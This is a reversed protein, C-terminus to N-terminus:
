GITAAGALRDRGRAGRDPGPQGSRCASRRAADRRRVASRRVRERGRARDRPAALRAPVRPARPLDRAAVAQGDRRRARGDLAGESRPERLLVLAAQGRPAVGLQACSRRTASSTTPPSWRSTPRSRPRRRTTSSSTRRRSAHRRARRRHGRRRRSLRARRRRTCRPAARRGRARRHALAGLRRAAPRPARACACLTPVDLRARSSRSCRSWGRSSSSGRGRSAARRAPHERRLPQGPLLRDRRQVHVGAARRLVAVARSARARCARAAAARHPRASLLGGLPGCSARRDRQGSRRRGLARGTVLPMTAYAPRHRVDLRLDAGSSGASAGRHMAPIALVALRALAVRAIAARTASGVGVRRSVRARASAPRRPSRRAARARARSGLDLGLSRPSCRRRSRSSSASCASCRCRVRAGVARPCGAGSAAVGSGRAALAAAMRRCRAADRCRRMM